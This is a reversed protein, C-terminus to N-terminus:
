PRRMRYTALQNVTAGDDRVEFTATEIRQLVNGVDGLIESFLMPARPAGNESPPIQPFDIHRMVRSYRSRETGHRYGSLYAAGTARRSGALVKDFLVESDAIVLVNGQVSVFRPNLGSLEWASGGRRNWTLASSSWAREASTQVAVKVATEDWNSAALLLLASDFGV